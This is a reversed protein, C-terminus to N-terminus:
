GQGGKAPLPRCILEARVVVDGTQVDVYTCGTFLVLLVIAIVAWVWETTM